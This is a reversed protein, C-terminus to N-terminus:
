ATRKWRDYYGLIQQKGHISKKVVWPMRRNGQLKYCTCFGNPFRM